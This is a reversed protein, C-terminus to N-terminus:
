LKGFSQFSHSPYYLHRYKLEPNWWWSGSIILLEKSMWPGLLQFLLIVQGHIARIGVAHIFGIIKLVTNINAFSSLSFYYNLNPCVNEIRSGSTYAWCMHGTDRGECGRESIYFSRSACPGCFQRSRPPFNRFSALGDNGLCSRCNVTYTPVMVQPMSTSHFIVM